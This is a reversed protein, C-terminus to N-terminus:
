SQLSDLLFMKMLSSLLIIELKFHKVTEIVPKPCFFIYFYYVIVKDRMGEMLSPYDHGTPSYAM